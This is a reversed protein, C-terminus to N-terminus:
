IFIEHDKKLVYDPKGKTSLEQKNNWFLDSLHKQEHTRYYMFIISLGANHITLIKGKNDLLYLM